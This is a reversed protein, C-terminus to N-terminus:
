RSVLHEVDEYYQQQFRPSCIALFVLEDLGTNTIRQPCGSPIVVVSGPQVAAPALDGAEVLGSGRLIVYREVIGHLRHWRTTIGPAVRAEAISVAADDASNSLENITCLEETFYDNASDRHRIFAQM